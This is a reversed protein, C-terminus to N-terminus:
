YKLLQYIFEDVKPLNVNEEECKMLLDSLILQKLNM